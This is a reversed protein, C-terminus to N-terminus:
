LGRLGFSLFGQVGRRYIKPEHAQTRIGSTVFEQHDGVVARLEIFAPGDFRWGAGATGYGSWSDLSDSYQSYSYSVNAGTLATFVAAFTAGSLNGSTRVVWTEQIGGGAFVYPHGGSGMRFDLTQELGFRLSRWYESGTSSQSDDQWNGSRIGTFGIVARTETLPNWRCLAFGEVGSGIRNTPSNGSQTGNGELLTGLHVSAGWSFGDEQALVPLSTSLAFGGIIVCGFKNSISRMM